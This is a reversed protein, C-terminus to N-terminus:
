ILANSGIMLDKILLRNTPISPRINENSFLPKDTLNINHEEKHTKFKLNTFTYVFITM